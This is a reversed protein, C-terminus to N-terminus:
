AASLCRKCTPENLRAPVFKWEVRPNRYRDEIGCLTKGDRMLHGRPRRREIGADVTIMALRNPDDGPPEVALAMECRKCTPEDKAEVFRWQCTQTRQMRDAACVTKGDQVLHAKGRRKWQGYDYTEIVVRM